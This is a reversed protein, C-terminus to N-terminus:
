PAGVFTNWAQTFGEYAPRIKAYQLKDKEELMSERESVVSLHNEVETRANNFVNMRHISESGFVIYPTSGIIFPKCGREQYFQPHYLNQNNYCVCTILFGPNEFLNFPVSVDTFLKSNPIDRAAEHLTELAKELAGKLGNSNQGQLKFIYQDLFFDEKFREQVTKYYKSDRGVALKCLWKWKIQANEELVALRDFAQLSNAQQYHGKATGIQKEQEAIRGLGYQGLEHDKIEQLLDKAKNLNLNKAEGQYYTMALNSIAFVYSKKKRERYLAIATDFDKREEELNLPFYIGRINLAKCVGLDAAKSIWEKAKAEDKPVGNGMKYANGYYYLTRAYKLPPLTEPCKELGAFREYIKFAGNHDQDGGRGKSLLRAYLFEAELHGQEGALKFWKRAEKYDQKIGQGIKYCYGEKYQAKSHGLKAAELAKHFATVIDNKADYIRSLAFYARPDQAAVACYYFKEAEDLNPSLSGEIGFEHFCGLEYCAQPLTYVNGDGAHVYVAQDYINKATSPSGKSFSGFCGDTGEYLGKFFCTISTLYPSIPYPFSQEPQDLPIPTETPTLFAQTSEQLTDTPTCSPNMTPSAIDIVIKGMDKYFQQIHLYCSGVKSLLHPGYKLFFIKANILASEDGIGTLPQNAKECLVSRSICRELQTLPLEYHDYLIQHILTNQLASGRITDPFEMAVQYLSGSPVEDQEPEMGLVHPVFSLGGLIQFICFIVLRKSM